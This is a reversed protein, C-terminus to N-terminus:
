PNHIRTSVPEHEVANLSNGTENKIKCQVPFMKYQLTTFGIKISYDAQINADTLVLLIRKQRIPIELKMLAGVCEAIKLLIGIYRCNM